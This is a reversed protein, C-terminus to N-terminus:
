GNAAVEQKKPHIKFCSVMRDTKGISQLEPISTNCEGDIYDPCRTRFTCGSPRNFPHPITGRISPLRGEGETYISPISRLLGQTYPHQPDHFIDDVNGVEVAKGLYMVVVDDAVEAIVGLNHTIYLIAMNNQKQLTKLLELIQAQTTVDLATTPEDAILLKPDASLAMAIMARQRLGGSLQYAYENLRSRPNPIGVLDFLEEARAMANKKSIDMHLQIAEIVQNGVTHVPSFSTMPEQFILAIEGGRVQRILASGPKEKALDILGGAADSQFQIEGEVIKGPHDLIQLLSRGVTSKGCGSEGVVGLTKGPQISFTVGDVAKVVGEDTPFYTKLNNVSLLANNDVM